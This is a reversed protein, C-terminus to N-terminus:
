AAQSDTGGVPAALLRRLQQRRPAAVYDALGSCQFRFERFSRDVEANTRWLLATRDTRLDVMGPCPSFCYRHREAALRHAAMTIANWVFPWAFAEVPRGIWSEIVAAADLIERGYEVEPTESLRVHSLTHNGITHGRDVLDRIEHPTMAREYRAARRPFRKGFFLRSADGTALSFAPVVFFLGRTGAEELLPAAVEYNSVLGDDFTLLVAPRDSAPWVPSAVRQTFAGFDIVEFRRRLWALQRRFRGVHSAPTGHFFLVRLLAQRRAHMVRREHVRNAADVGLGTAMGIILERGLSRVSM